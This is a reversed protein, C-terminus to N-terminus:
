ARLMDVRVGVGYNSFPIDVQLFDANKNEDRQDRAYFVGGAWGANERSDRQAAFLPLASATPRKSKDPQGDQSQHRGANESLM